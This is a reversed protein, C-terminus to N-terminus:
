IWRQLHVNVCLSRRGHSNMLRTAPRCFTTPRSNHRHISIALANDRAAGTAAGAGIARIVDQLYNAV